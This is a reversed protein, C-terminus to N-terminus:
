RNGTTFTWRKSQNGSSTASQDLAMGAISTVNTTVTVRYKQSAALTSGPRVTAKRSAANYGVTHALSVWKRKTKSYVQLKINPTTITSADMDTSFTATPRTNRPVGTTQTPTYDVVTPPHIPAPTTDVTWSRSAPTPDPIGAPDIAYVEVMYSADPLPGVNWPSQCNSWIGGGWVGGSVRCKFSSDNVSSIFEFTASTSTVTGSPGSTITTEPPPTSNLLVSVNNSNQNAVALDAFNDANVEADIVFIPGDGAPFNQATQFGGSGNNFLVSVNDSAFNSVSLDAKTDGNFDTSTVASPRTGAAFDQRTQFTGDGNGRLVSVVNAYDVAAALDVKGDANLDATTISPTVGQQSTGMSYARANQFTGDGNGLAVSIGGPQCWFFCAGYNATALDAEGDANFDKTIVQNPSQMATFACLDGTCPAQISFNQAAQFTGDGNGSLVSVENSSYNAVALDAKGDSNFDASIVSSPNARAAFEQKAQFTGDGKGLLVSVNNSSWNAVALDAKGDANFDASTVSTPASGVAFDQKAQFTGDGMGLLVSVSNSGSNQTALDVKGDANFDANTVTTPTSGVALPSGPAPLFTRPEAWAPNAGVLALLGAALVVAAFLVLSVRHGYINITM